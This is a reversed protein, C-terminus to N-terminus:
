AYNGAVVFLYTRFASDIRADDVVAADVVVGGVDAAPESSAAASFSEDLPSSFKPDFERCSRTRCCCSASLRWSSCGSHTDTSNRSERSKHTTFFFCFVFSVIPM